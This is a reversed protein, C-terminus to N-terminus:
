VIVEEAVFVNVAAAVVVLINIFEVELLAKDVVRLLEFEEAEITVVVVELIM